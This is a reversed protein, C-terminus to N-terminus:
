YWEGGLGLTFTTLVGGVVFTPHAALTLCFGSRRGTSAGSFAFAARFDLGFATGAGIGASAAGAQASSSVRVLVDASPGVGLDLFNFLTFGAMFTNYAAAFVGVVVLEQSIVGYGGLLGTAQYYASFVPTIQAGIRGSAGGVGSLRGGYTVGGLISFGGRLRLTVTKFDPEQSLADQARAISGLPSAALALLVLGIRVM